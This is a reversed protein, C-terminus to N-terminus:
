SDSILTHMESKSPTALRSLKSIHTNEGFLNASMPAYYICARVCACVRTHLCLFLRLDHMRTSTGAIVHHESACDCICMHM